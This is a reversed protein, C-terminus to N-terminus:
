RLVKSALKIKNLNDRSFPIQPKGSLLIAYNQYNGTATWRYYCHNTLVKNYAQSQEAVQNLSLSEIKYKPPLQSNDIRRTLDEDKLNLLSEDHLIVCGAFVKPLILLYEQGKQQQILIKLGIIKSERHRNNAVDFKELPIPLSSSPLFLNWIAKGKILKIEFPTPFGDALIIRDPKEQKAERWKQLFKDIATLANQFPITGPLKLENEIDTLPRYLDALTPQFHLVPCQSKFILPFQGQIKDLYVQFAIAKLKQLLQDRLKTLLIQRKLCATSTTEFLPLLEQLQQLIIKALQKKKPEKDHFCYNTYEQWIQYLSVYVKNWLRYMQEHADATICPPAYEEDMHWCNHFVMRGIILGSRCFSELDCEKEVLHLIYRPTCCPFPQQSSDLQQREKSIKEIGVFVEQTLRESIEIDRCITESDLLFMTGDRSFGALSDAIKLELHGDHECIKYKAPQGGFSLLGYNSQLALISIFKLQQEYYYEQVHFHEATIRKGDIWEPLYFDYM